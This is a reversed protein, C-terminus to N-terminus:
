RRAALPVLARALPSATRRRAVRLLLSLAAAAAPSGRRLDALTASVVTPAYAPLAEDLERAAFDDGPEEVQPFAPCSDHCADEELLDCLAGYVDDAAQDPSTFLAAVASRSPTVVASM